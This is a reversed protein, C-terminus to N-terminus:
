KKNEELNKKFLAKEILRVPLNYKESMERIKELIDFFYKTNSFMNNPRTQANTKFIEDYVHIDYIYYKQPNYFSLIVSALAVGVGKFTRLKELKLIDGEISFAEKSVREIEEESIDQIFNLIRKQRGLLRGQFKWKIIKVLNEKTLFGQERLTKGIEDEVKNYLEEERNYRDNWKLIEEREIM